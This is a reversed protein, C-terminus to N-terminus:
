WPTSSRARYAAINRRAYGRYGSAEISAGISGECSIFREDLNLFQSGLWHALLPGASTKGSGGPGVLHVIPTVPFFDPTSTSTRKQGVTVQRRDCTAQACPARFPLVPNELASTRRDRYSRANAIVSPVQPM